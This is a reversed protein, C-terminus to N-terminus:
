KIKLNRIMYENNTFDFDSCEILFIESKPIYKKINKEWYSKKKGILENM